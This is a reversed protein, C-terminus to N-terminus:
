GRTGSSRSRPRAPIARSRGPFRRADEPVADETESFFTVEPQGGYTANYEPHFSEYEYGNWELISLDVEANAKRPVLPMAAVGIGVSALIGAAQRRSITGQRLRDALEHPNM